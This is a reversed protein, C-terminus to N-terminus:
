VCSRLSLTTTPTAGLPHELLSASLRMPERCLDARVASEPSAGHYGDNFLLYLARQVAPLRGSFYDAGSIDFLRASKALVKRARTIRKEIAAHSSVFAGAIDGVSFGCPIHLVLAIQAEEQLRPNCCSFMMRLLDDKVAGAAFLKEVAPAAILGFKPAYGFFWEFNDLLSWYMYGRVDFGDNAARTVGQLARRIYEVRKLDDNTAIGNETLQCMRLTLLDLREIEEIRRVLESLEQNVHLCRGTLVDGDGRALAVVFRGIKEPDTWLAGPMRHFEPM